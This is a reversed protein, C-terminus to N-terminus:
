RGGLAQGQRRNRGARCDQAGLAVHGGRNRAQTQRRRFELSVHASLDVLPAFGDLRCANLGLSIRGQDFRRAKRVLKQGRGGLSLAAGYRAIGM